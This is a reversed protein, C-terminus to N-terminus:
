HISQRASRHILTLFKKRVRTFRSALDSQIRTQIPMLISLRIRIQPRIPMFLIWLVSRYSWNKKLLLFCRATGNDYLFPCCSRTGLKIFSLIFENSGYRWINLISSFLGMSLIWMPSMTWL